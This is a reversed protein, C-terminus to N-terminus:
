AAMAEARLLHREEVLRHVIRLLDLEDIGATVIVDALTSIGDFLSRVYEDGPRLPTRPKHESPRYRMDDPYRERLMILIEGRLSSRFRACTTRDSVAHKLNNMLDYAEDLRGSLALREAAQLTLHSLRNGM